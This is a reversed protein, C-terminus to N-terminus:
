STVPVSESGTKLDEFGNLTLAEVTFLTKEIGVHLMHKQVSDAINMASDHSHSLVQIRLPSSRGMAGKRMCEYFYNDQEPFSYGVGVVVQAWRIADVISRKTLEIVTKDYLPSVMHNSLLETRRPRPKKCYACRRNSSASTNAGTERYTCQWYVYVRSCSRCVMYNLSGHPKIYMLDAPKGRSVPYGNMGAIDVGGYEWTKTFLSFLSEDLMTDYNFSIIKANKDLIFSRVFQNYLSVSKKDRINERALDNFHSLTLFYIRQLMELVREKRIRATHLDCFNKEVKLKEIDIARVENILEEPYKKVLIEPTTDVGIAMLATPLDCWLDYLDQIPFYYYPKLYKWTYYYRMAVIPQKRFRKLETISPAPRSPDSFHSAFELFGIDRRTRWRRMYATTLMISASFFDSSLPFGLHRSAGAGFIWLTRVDENAGVNSSYV